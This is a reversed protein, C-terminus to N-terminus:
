LNFFKLCNKVFKFNMKKKKSLYYEGSSQFEIFNNSHIDIDKILFDRIIFNNLKGKYFKNFNFFLSSAPKVIIRLHAFDNILNFYPFMKLGYGFYPICGLSVTIIDGKHLIEGPRVLIESLRLKNDLRVRYSISNNTISIKDNNNTLFRPLSNFISSYFYKLFNNFYVKNFKFINKKLFFYNNIIKSDIGVGIFFSFYDGDCLILGHNFINIKSGIDLKKLINSTNTKNLFLSFANGTGFKLVGFVPLFNCNYNSKLKIILNIISFLTGDGGCCFIFNYKCDIIYKLYSVCEFENKTFFVNNNNFLYKIIDINNKNKFKNNNNFLFAVDNLCINNKYKM